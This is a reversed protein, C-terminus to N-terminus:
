PKYFRAVYCSDGLWIWLGFFYFVRLRSCNILWQSLKQKNKVTGVNSWHGFRKRVLIDFNFCGLRLLVMGDFNVLRTKLLMLRDHCCLWTFITITIEFRIIVGYIGSDFVLHLKWTSTLKIFDLWCPKWQKKGARLVISRDCTETGALGSVDNALGTTVISGTEGKDFGSTFPGVDDLEGFEPGIADDFGTSGPDIVDCIILWTASGGFNVTRNGENTVWSLNIWFLM